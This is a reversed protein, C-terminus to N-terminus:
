IRPAKAKSLLYQLGVKACRRSFRSQEGMLSESKSPGKDSIRLSIVEAFSAADAKAKRRKEEVKAMEGNLAKPLAQAEACEKLIEKLKMPVVVEQVIERRVQLKIEETSAKLAADIQKKLLEEAAM